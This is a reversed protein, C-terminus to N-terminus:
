PKRELALVCLDLDITLIQIKIVVFLPSSVRACAAGGERELTRYHRTELLGELDESSSRGLGVNSSSPLALPFPYSLPPSSSYPSVSLSLPLSLSLSLSFSCAVPCGLSKRCLPKQSLISLM